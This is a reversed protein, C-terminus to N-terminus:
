PPHPPSRRPRDRERDLGAAPAPDISGRAHGLQQLGIRQLDLELVAHGVDRGALPQQRGVVERPEGRRTRRLGDAVLVAVEVGVVARELGRAIGAPQPRRAAARDDRELAQLALVIAARRVPALLELAGRIAAIGGASQGGDMARSATTSITPSRM